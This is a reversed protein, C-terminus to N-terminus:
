KHVSVYHVKTKVIKVLITHMSIAKSISSTDGGPPFLLHPLKSDLIRFVIKREKKKKWFKEKERSYLTPTSVSWQICNWNGIGLMGRWYSLGGHTCTEGKHQGTPIAAWPVLVLFHQCQRISNRNCGKPESTPNAHKRRGFLFSEWPLM